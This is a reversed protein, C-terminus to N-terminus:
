KGEMWEVTKRLQDSPIETDNPSNGYSNILYSLASMTWSRRHLNEDIARRASDSFWHNGLLRRNAGNVIAVKDSTTALKHALEPSDCGQWVTVRGRLAPDADKLARVFGM